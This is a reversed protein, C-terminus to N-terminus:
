GQLHIQTEMGVFSGARLVVPMPNKVTNANGIQGGEGSVQALGCVDVEQPPSSLIPAM